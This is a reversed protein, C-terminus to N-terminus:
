MGSPLIVGSTIKIEAISPVKSNTNNEISPTLLNFIDHAKGKRAVIDKGNFFEELELQDLLEICFKLFSFVM